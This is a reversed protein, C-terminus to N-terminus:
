WNSAIREDGSVCTIRVGQKRAELMVLSAQGPRLPGTWEDGTEFTDVNACEWEDDRLPKEEAPFNGTTVGFGSGRGADVGGGCAGLMLAVALGAIIKRVNMM